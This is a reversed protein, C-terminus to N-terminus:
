KPRAVRGTATTAVAEAAEITESDIPARRVKAAGRLGHEVCRRCFAASSTRCGRCLRPAAELSEQLAQLLVRDSDIEGPGMYGPIACIAVLTDGSIVISRQMRAWQAHLAEVVDPHVRLERVIDTTRVDQRLRDFVKAALEADRAGLPRRGAGGRPHVGAGVRARLTRLETASYLYRGKDDRRPRTKGQEEWRRLTTKAIGLARCVEGRTYEDSRLSSRM